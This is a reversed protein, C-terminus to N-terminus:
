ILDHSDAAVETPNRRKPKEPRRWEDSVGTCGQNAVVVISTSANGSPSYSLVNAQIAEGGVTLNGHGEQQVVSEFPQRTVNYYGTAELERVLYDVTKNIGASGM